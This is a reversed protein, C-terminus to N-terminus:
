PLIWVIYKQETFSGNGDGFLIAIRKRKFNYAALDLTNDNNFDKIRVTLPKRGTLYNMRPEYKGNGLGMAISVGGRKSKTTIFDLIGDSNLDRMQSEPPNNAIAAKPKNTKSNTSNSAIKASTGEAGLAHAATVFITSFFLLLTSQAFLKFQYM